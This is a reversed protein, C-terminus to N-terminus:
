RWVLVVWCQLDRDYHVYAENEDRGKVTAVDVLTAVFHDREERIRALLVMCKTLEPEVYLIRHTGLTRRDTM